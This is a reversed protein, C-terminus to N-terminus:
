CPENMSPKRPTRLGLIIQGLDSVKVTADEVPAGGVLEAIKVDVQTLADSHGRWYDESEVMPM